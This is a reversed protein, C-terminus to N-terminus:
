EGHSWSDLLANGIQLMYGKLNAGLMAMRIVGEDDFPTPMDDSDYNSFTYTDYREGNLPPEYEFTVKCTTRDASYSTDVILATGRRGLCDLFSRYPFEELQINEDEDM